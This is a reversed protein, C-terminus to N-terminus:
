VKLVGYSLASNLNFFVTISDANISFRSHKPIELASIIVVEEPKFMLVISQPYYNKKFRFWVVEVREITTNILKGWNSSTTVDVERFTTLEFQIPKELISVGYKIFESGWTFGFVKGSQMKLNVGFDTNDYNTTKNSVQSCGDYEAQIYEVSVLTECKLTSVFKLYEEKTVRHGELVNFFVIVNLRDRICM